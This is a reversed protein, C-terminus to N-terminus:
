KRSIGIIRKYNKSNKNSGGSVGGDTLVGILILGKRKCFDQIQIKQSKMSYGEEVQKNTSVRTYGIVKKMM